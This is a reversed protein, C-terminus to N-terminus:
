AKVQTERKLAAIVSVKEKELQARLQAQQQRWAQFSASQLKGAEQLTLKETATAQQWGQM